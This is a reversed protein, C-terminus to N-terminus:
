RGLYIIVYIYPIYYITITISNMIMISNIM